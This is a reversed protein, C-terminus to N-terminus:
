PRSADQSRDFGSLLGVFGVEGDRVARLGQVALTKKWTKEM